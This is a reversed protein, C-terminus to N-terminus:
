GSTGSTLNVYLPAQDVVAATSEDGDLVGCSVGVLRLEMAAYRVVTASSIRPGRIFIHNQPEM